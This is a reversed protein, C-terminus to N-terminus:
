LLLSLDIRHRLSVGQSIMDLLVLAILLTLVLVALFLVLEACFAAVDIVNVVVDDALPNPLTGICNHSNAEM